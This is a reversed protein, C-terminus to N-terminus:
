LVNRIACVMNALGGNEALVDKPIADLVEGAALAKQKWHGVPEREILEFKVGKKRCEEEAMKASSSGPAALIYVKDANEIIRNNSWIISNGRNPPFVSYSVGNIRAFETVLPNVGNTYLHIIQDLHPGLRESLFDPDDFSKSAIVGIRFRKIDLLSM